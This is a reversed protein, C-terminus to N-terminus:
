LRFRRMNDLFYRWGRRRFGGGLEMLGGPMFVVALVIVLGYFASAMSLQSALLESIASLSFAGVIPGLVTGPGGFV